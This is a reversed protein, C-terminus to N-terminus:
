NVEDKLMSNLIDTDENFHNILMLAASSMATVLEPSRQLQDFCDFWAQESIENYHGLYFTAGTLAVMKTIEVQNDATTITVSPLGLFCREWTTSGGAGLALDAHLMLRSMYDIQSHLRFHNHTACFRAIDDLQENAGGVVVDFEVETMVLRAMAKLTKLTEGTPDTGGFFILVNRISGDRIRAKARALQFEERLLAYQPGLLKVCASPVLGDYRQVMRDFLNQDLLIDCDHTRNALDDIVFIRRAFARAKKEWRSDIAYHDIVLWDLLGNDRLSGETQAVDISWSEGLWTEYGTGKVKQGKTEECAPLRYVHFGQRQVYDCLNGEHERCVFHVDAGSRRLREALTLSRMVHGSGIEISADVRIGVRMM